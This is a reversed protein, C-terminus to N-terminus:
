KGQCQLGKQLQVLNREMLDFFTVNKAQDDRSLNHAGHLMLVGVGAEQALTETLRPSLLEEAFLYNSGSSKIERVLAAMREASPESDSSVGSLAHYELNYRRALYGFTYHGGHLLTRNACSSLGKRYRVDLADLRKKLAEANQRYVAANGPDAAVFGDLITDVMLAANAFDLWIHPDMGKQDHKHGGAERAGHEHEHSGGPQYPVREGANVVRLSRSDIGSVIKEAWPEMYKSTYIFLGARSIRIMDEPRPEFSHPEVGPPLLMTVQAKDGGITRAFDYLPFLTTVVQLGAVPAVEAQQKCGASFLSAGALIFVLIVSLATKM